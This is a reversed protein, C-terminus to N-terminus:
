LPGIRRQRCAMRRGLGLGHAHPMARGPGTAARLGPRLRRAAPGSGRTAHLWLTIRELVTPTASDPRATCLALLWADLLRHDVDVRFAGGTRSQESACAHRHRPALPLRTPAVARNELM